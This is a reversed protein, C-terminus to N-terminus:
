QRGYFITMTENYSVFYEGYLKLWWDFHRRLLTLWFTNSWLYFRVVIIPFFITKDFLVCECYNIKGCLRWFLKKISKIDRYSNSFAKYFCGDLRHVGTAHPMNWNTKRFLSPNECVNIKWPGSYTFIVPYCILIKTMEDSTM